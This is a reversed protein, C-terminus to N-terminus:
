AGRGIPRIHQCLRHKQKFNAAFICAIKDKNM